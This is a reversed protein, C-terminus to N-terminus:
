KSPCAYRNRYELVNYIRSRNYRQMMIPYINIVTNMAVGTIAQEYNGNVLNNIILPTFTLNGIFHVGEYLRTWKELNELSENSFDKIWRDERSLFKIVRGFTALYLRHFQKVGLKGYLKGNKEFSKPRFYYDIGSKVSNAVRQFFGEKEETEGIPIDVDTNYLTRELDSLERADSTKLKQGM